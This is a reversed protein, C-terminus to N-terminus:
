LVSEVCKKVLVNKGLGLNKYFCDAVIAFSPHTQKSDTVTPFHPDKLFHFNTFVMVSLNNYCVPTVTFAASVDARLKPLVQKPLQAKHVAGPM